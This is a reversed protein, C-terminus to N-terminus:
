NDAPPLGTRLTRGPEEGPSLGSLAANLTPELRIAPPLGALQLAILLPGSPVCLVLPRRGAADWLARIGGSSAYDVGTLDILLTEQTKCADLADRLQSSTRGSIRGTLTLIAFTDRRDLTIGLDWSRRPPNAM